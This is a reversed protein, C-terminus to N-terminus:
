SQLLRGEDSWTSDPVDEFVFDFIEAYDSVFHVQIGEKVEEPIEDWDPQNYLPCIIHEMGCAKAAITKQKLGGIKLIKGTLTLEGTMAVNNKIKRNLALSLISTAMTCGASPGDKSIAGSPCHLHIQAYRFFKSKPYRKSFFAKSFSYAIASSEKMVDGLQGTRSLGGGKDELNLTSELISEVYLGSGGLLYM